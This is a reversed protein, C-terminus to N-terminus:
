TMFEESHLAANILDMVPLSLTNFRTKAAALAAETDVGHTASKSTDWDVKLANVVHHSCEAYGQAYGDNQAAVLLHAVTKDLEESNLVSEAVKVVFFLLFVCLCRWINDSISLSISAIGREKLWLLDSKLPELESEATARATESNELKDEIESLRRSTETQKTRELDVDKKVAEVEAKLQAQESLLSILEEIEKDRLALTACTHVERQESQERHSRVEDRAAEAEAEAKEKKLREIEADQKKMREVAVKLNNIINRLGMNENNDRECIERLNKREKSLLAAEAEVLKARDAELTAKMQAMQAEDEAYKKKSAEFAAWEKCMSRWKRLIRHTTSTYRGAEELYAHYAQEQASDEQFKIEGSPSTGQLWDRCVRWNSFTDGKKLNWVPTHVESAKRETYTRYYHDGLTEDPHLPDNEDDYSSAGQDGDPDKEVNVPASTPVYDPITIVPEELIFEGKEADRAVAEPSNPHAVNANELDVIREVEVTKEVKPNKAETNKEVEDEAAKSSDLQENISARPPSPPLDENAVSSPESHVPSIPKKPSPKSIFADLNGRRTIKKRQVKKAPQGEANADGQKRNGVKKTLLPEPSSELDIPDDPNSPPIDAIDRPEAKPKKVIVLALGLALPPQAALEEDRPLVFNKVIQLYWLEEDAKKPVTAMKGCKRFLTLFGWVKGKGDETYVPKDERNMRWCLSM